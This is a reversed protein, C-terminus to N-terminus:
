TNKKKNSDIIKVADSPQLWNMNAFIVKASEIAGQCHSDFTQLGLPYGNEFPLKSAVNSSMTSLCGCCRRYHALSRRCSLVSHIRVQHTISVDRCFLSYAPSFCDKKQSLRNSLVECRLRQKDFYLIKTHLPWPFAFVPFHSIPTQVIRSQWFSTEHVSVCWWIFYARTTQCCHQIAPNPSSSESSLWNALVKLRGAKVITVQNIRGTTM